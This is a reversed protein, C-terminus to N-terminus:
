RAAKVVLSYAHTGTTVPASSDTVKVTFSFTGAVTPVGSLTGGAGLTLGTPPTGSVSWTYPTIGGKAALSKSYATGVRGAGLTATTISVPASAAVTMSLAQSGTSGTSDKAAVTFTSTGAVTPTGSLGGTKKNLKVGRPLAGATLSFTYSPHGGGAYM